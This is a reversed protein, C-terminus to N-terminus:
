QDEQGNQVGIQGECWNVLFTMGDVHWSQVVPDALLSVDSLRRITKDRLKKIEEITM